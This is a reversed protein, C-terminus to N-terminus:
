DFKLKSNYKKSVDRASYFHRVKAHDPYERYMRIQFQSVPQYVAPPTDVIKEDAQEIRRGRRLGGYETKKPADANEIKRVYASHTDLVEFYSYGAELTAEAARLLAYQDTQTRNTFANGEAKIVAMDAGIRETVVADEYTTACGAACVAILALFRRM